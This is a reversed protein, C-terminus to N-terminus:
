GLLRSMDERDADYFMSFNGSGDWYQLFRNKFRTAQMLTNIYATKHGGLVDNRPIEIRGLKSIKLRM